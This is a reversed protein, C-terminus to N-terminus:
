EVRGLAGGDGLLSSADRKGTSADGRFLDSDFTLSVSRISPSFRRFPPTDANRNSSRLGRGRGEVSMSSRMSSTVFSSIWTTTGGGNRRVDRFLFDRRRVLYSSVRVSVAM